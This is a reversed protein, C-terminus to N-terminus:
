EIIWDVSNYILKQFDEDAYANKDHGFILYVIDSNGYKNTWALPSNCDPHDTGLLPHINASLELNSYGEDHITFNSLGNTVAHEPDLIEIDLDLDHKYDSHRSTDTTTEAAVYRGGIINFFEDWNQNSVLSHHLFLLGKGKETLDLYANKHKEEIIKWMDYFIYADYSQGEESGLFENAWPQSVTDVDYNELNMFFDFFETTDFNHGGTVVLIQPNQKQFISCYNLVLISIASLFLLRMIKFKTHDLGLKLKIYPRPM